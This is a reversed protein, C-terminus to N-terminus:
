EMGMKSERYIFCLTETEGGGGEVRRGDMLLSRELQTTTHVIGGSSDISTVRDRVLKALLLSLLSV